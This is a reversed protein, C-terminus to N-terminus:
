EGNLVEDLFDHDVALPPKSVVIKTVWTKIISELCKYNVHDRIFGLLHVGFSKEYYTHLNEYLPKQSLFYGQLAFRRRDGTAKVSGRRLIHEM